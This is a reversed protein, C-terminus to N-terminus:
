PTLGGSAACVETPCIQLIQDRVSFPNGTQLDLGILDQERSTSGGLCGKWWLAGLMILILLLVLAISGALFFIESKGKSPPKFESEVSLASILPGYTGISPIMTAGKGAWLFRIELTGNTVFVGKVVHIVEKDVGKAEKKIDFDKSVLKGQIYVDFIRRGLSYFSRNDRIIIEAYHLKVTFSGNALCRMYYTLSLPSLRATQYLEANKMTLLSVNHAVYATSTSTINTDWFHGTSSTVWDEGMPIYHAPGGMYEDGEYNIDGITTARGGCNIHFSYRVKQCPRKDLCEAVCKIDKNKIWDPISGSLFNSTLYLKEMKTLGELKPIPGDLKNFSLDLIKLVPMESIFTPIVGSINCNRLMLSTMNKMNGLLPFKSGAGHLDSIRLDTLNILSSISSSIPGELGSSQIELKRLQKWSQFFDPM